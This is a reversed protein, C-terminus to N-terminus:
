WHVDEFAHGVIDGIADGLVDGIVSGFGLMDRFAMALSVWGVVDVLCLEGSVGWLCRRLCLVHGRYSAVCFYYGALVVSAFAVCIRLDFGRTHTM